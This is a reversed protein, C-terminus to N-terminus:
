SGTLEDFRVLWHVDLADITSEDAKNVIVSSGCYRAGAQAILTELARLSSGTTVWDDVVAVADDPALDFSRGLFTEPHGRWTDESEIRRDAGPHNREDKRAIVLGSGLELAVLAGIIPGRAEPALVKTVGAQRFPAALAPGLLALLGPDRLVGAVDPHDDVLPFGALLRRRAEGPPSGRRM